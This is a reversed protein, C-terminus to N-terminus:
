RTTQVDASAVCVPGGGQLLSRQAAELVQVVAVSFAGDSRCSTRRCISDIFHRSQIKLPEENEVKPLRVDGDWMTVRQFETFSDYEPELQAGRDYIAVPASVNLDDWTAMRQAGVITMQRVKKPNLWSAHINAVVNNQYQLTMFVVDHLGPQIFAGGVCSVSVPTENLLWNFVSIDHAALDYAANVDHRVPGLNTRIASLYRVDGLERADILQKIKGIGPNFLFTHATMLILQRDHALKVLERAEEARTCLPKECLVHKGARLAQKSLEFHTETPTALVVADIAPDSWVQALDSEFSLHPYTQRVRALHTADVDVATVRCDLFSQFNRIHNPGWYGCGIVALNLDRNSQPLDTSHGYSSVSACDVQLRM